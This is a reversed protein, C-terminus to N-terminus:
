VSQLGGSIGGIIASAKELGSPEARELADMLQQRAKRAQRRAEAFGVDYERRGEGLEAMSNLLQELRALREQEAGVDFRRAGEREAAVRGMLDEIQQKRELEKETVFREAGARAQGRANEIRGATVEGLRPDGYGSRVSQDAAVRRAETAQSEIGEILPNRLANVEDPTLGSGLRESAYRALQALEPFQESHLPVRPTGTDEVEDFGQRLHELGLEEARGYGGKFREGRLNETAEGTQGQFGARRAQRYRQAAEEPSGAEPLRDWPAIKREYREAQRAIAGPARRRGMTALSGGDGDTPLLPM